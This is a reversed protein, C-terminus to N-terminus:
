RDAGGADRRQDAPLEADWIVLDAGSRAQIESVQDAPLSAWPQLNGCSHVLAELSTFAVVALRGDTLRRLEITADKDRSLLRKELPVFVPEPEEGNQEAIYDAGIM